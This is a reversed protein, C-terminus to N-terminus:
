NFSAPECPEGRFCRKVRDLTEATPKPFGFGGCPTVSLIHGDEGQELFALYGIGSRAGACWPGFCRANLTIAREFPITFGDVSLADGTIRAPIRTEPPTEHQRSMDVVPLASEDFELVGKVVIFVDKSRAAEQYTRAVDHPMCSLALAPMACISPVFAALLRGIM